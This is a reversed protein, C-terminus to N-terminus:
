FGLNNLFNKATQFSKELTMRSLRKSRFKGMSGVPTAAEGAVGLHSECCDAVFCLPDRDELPRRGAGFTVAPCGGCHNKVRCDHCAESGARYRCAERSEYMAALSAKRVHGLLSPFKRCAHVEGDPLLAVFNFAAGCGHGTCGPFLPRGLRHRIVNFLNDKFGFVPNTKRARLYEALFEAYQERGPLALGTGEGVQALRNFTFRATLGRLQEGLPIVEGLNDRTLTLMVHTELNLQRAADLFALVRDYHGAGRIAEDHQRLGELSVQYYIPRQIELLRRITDPAIPNGLISVSIRADAIAHYLEWFHPYCLPDGGSLSVRPEVRRRRCFTRLDDLVRLAEPLGLEDRASRDYCHRCHFPCANTLHWQLTFNATKRGSFWRERIM